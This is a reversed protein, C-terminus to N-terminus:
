LCAFDFPSVMEINRGLDKNGQATQWHAAALLELSVSITFFIIVFIINTRLACVLYFVCLLGMFLPFFGYSADFGATNTGYSDAADYFPVLTTAFSLFYAGLCNYKLKYSRL